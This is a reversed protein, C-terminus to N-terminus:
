RNTAILELFKRHAKDVHSPVYKRVYTRAITFLSQTQEIIQESM